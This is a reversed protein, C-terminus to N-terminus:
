LLCAWLVGHPCAQGTSVGDPFLKFMQVTRLQRAAAATVNAVAQLALVAARRAGQM